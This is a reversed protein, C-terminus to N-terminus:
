KQVAAVLEEYSSPVSVPSPLQAHAQVMATVGKPSRRQKRTRSNDM